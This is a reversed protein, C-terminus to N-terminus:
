HTLTDTDAPDPDSGVTGRTGATAAVPAEPPFLDAPAPDFQFLEFDLRFRERVRAVLPRPVEGFAAAMTRRRLARWEAEGPSWASWAGLVLEAFRERAALTTAQHSFGPSRALLRAPFPAALPLYGNLQFALWLRRALGVRDLCVRLARRRGWLRFHYDVLQRVEDEVHADRTVPLVFPRPFPPTSGSRSSSNSGRSGSSSSSSNRNSNRGSSSRGGPPPPSLLFPSSSSSSSSGSNGSSSSSGGPPPPSLLLRRGLGSTAVVHALDRALTAVHGLVHPRYLCPNCTLHVPSWHPDHSVSVAYHLFETLSVDDACGTQSLCLSLHTM